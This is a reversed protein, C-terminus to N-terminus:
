WGYIRLRGHFHGMKATADAALHPPHDSGAQLPRPGRLHARRGPTALLEHTGDRLTRPRFREGGDGHVRDRLVGDWLADAVALQRAGLKRSLGYADHGLRGAIRARVVRDPARGPRDIGNCRERRGSM